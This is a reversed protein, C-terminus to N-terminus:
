SFLQNQVPAFEVPRSCEEDDTLVHAPTRDAFAHECALSGRFMRRNEAHRSDARVPM